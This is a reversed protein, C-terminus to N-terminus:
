IINLNIFRKPSKRIFSKLLNLIGKLSARLVACRFVKKGDKVFFNAKGIFDAVYDNAPQYYIEEPTGIQVIEGANMVVIKDSLSLAEEQDHTVFIMSINIKKQLQKLEERMSIKLKADLNSFPEDLLLLKPHLVLARALSGKAATRWEIRLCFSKM